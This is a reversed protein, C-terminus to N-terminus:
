PVCWLSSKEIKSILKATTGGALNYEKLLGREKGHLGVAVASYGGREVESLITGSVTLSWNSKETIRSDSIGNGNLIKRAKKYLEVKDSCTGNDAHFLTIDHQEQLALIYGVHDVARLSNESGDIALLVNKRNLDPEPCIWIPSTFCSDKIMSHPTEDGPREFIWQLTYSARRGLIIADYLGRQGERLIDKVKGYREAVTKVKISEISMRSQELLSSAKELARKAGVTLHEDVKEDPDTWMEFLAKDMESSDLRCIHLLTLQHESIKKFFACVFQVGSLNQSDNSVTVLLHKRM